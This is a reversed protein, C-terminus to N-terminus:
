GNMRDYVGQVVEVFYDVGIGKCTDVFEDWQADVDMSGMMFATISEKVYTSLSTEIESIAFSEDETYILRSITNAPKKGLRSSVSAWFDDERYQMYPDDPYQGAPIAGFMSPPVMMLTWIGYTKKQETGIVLNPSDYYISYPSDPMRPTASAIQEDTLLWWDIDQEGYRMSLSTEPKCFYDLLRMALEPSECQNTIHTTGSPMAAEEPCYAIGEPGAIPTVYTYCTRNYSSKGFCLEPHGVFVGVVQPDSECLAALGGSYDQTFSLDSILGESYLKNLYKLGEKFGDTLYQAYVKGDDDACMMHNYFGGTYYTFANMLVMVPDMIWGKGGVLPIEDAIGNGNPDGDRFAVLVDYLEDTTTPMSLGLKDLWTTNIWMAYCQPDSPDSYWNPFSYLGGDPSTLMKTLNKQEEENCWTEAAQKWFTCDDLYSNMDVFYGNAGYSAVDALSLGVNTIIDPLEQGSTVMLTLKQKAEDGSAPFFFFDLTVGSEDQIRKTLANDYYDLVQPNTPLGITITYDETILPLEGPASIAPVEALAVASLCLLMALVLALVKKM